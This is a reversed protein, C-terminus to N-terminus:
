DSGPAKAAEVIAKLSGPYAWGDISCGGALFFRHDGGLKRGQTVHARLFGPSVRSVITQDIGGMVCASTKKKVSALSPGNPGRDWWSFIDVPFDICDDFFLNKGHVHVTNMKGLGAIAKFVKMTPPKVFKLFNDRDIIEDAAAISLFIGASGIELSRKSYAILNDAVIDLAGLLEDPHNAMLDKITEGAMNRKISQWPDFVTDIFYAKGNLEEAIVKLAKFQEQWDTKDIDFPQIHKLDDGSKMTEIGKVAPYFYDNMVKLFDLDYHHFYELSLRAFQEGSGHQTGFHYWMSLPPYDVTKGNLVNDVREIKNM